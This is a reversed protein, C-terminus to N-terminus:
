CPLASPSLRGRYRSWRSFRNARSCIGARVSRTYATWSTTFTSAYRGPHGVVGSITAPASIARRSPLGSGASAEFLTQSSHGVLRSFFATVVSFRRRSAGSKLGPAGSLSIRQRISCPKRQRPGAVRPPQPPLSPVGRHMRAFMGHSPQKPGSDSLALGMTSM